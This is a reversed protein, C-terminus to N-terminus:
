DKLRYFLGFNLSFADISRREVGLRGLGLQYALGLQASFKRSLTREIGLAGTASGIYFKKNNLEVYEDRLIIKDGKIDIFSYKFKQNLLIDFNLGAGMYVSWNYNLPQYFRLHIPIQAITNEVLIKDPNKEFDSFNPYKNLDNETFNNDDVQNLKYTIANHFLGTFLRANKKLAFDAMAGYKLSIFREGIDPNPVLVGTAFGFRLDLPDKKPARVVPTEETGEYEIKKPLENLYAMDDILKQKDLYGLLLGDRGVNSFKSQSFNYRQDGATRQSTYALAENYKETNSRTINKYYSFLNDASQNALQKQNNAASRVEIKKIIYVTDVVRVTDYLTVFIKEVETDGANESTMAILSTIEQKDNKVQSYFWYNLFTFLSLGAVALPVRWRVYWPSHFTYDLAQAIKNWGSEAYKPSLAELKEKISKDFLNDDM